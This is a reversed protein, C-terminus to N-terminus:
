PRPLQIAGVALIESASSACMQFPFPVFRSLTEGPPYVRVGAATTAHCRSPPFDGADTVRLIAIASAGNPLTVTHPTGAVERSAARGIQRDALTVASVGPYGGLTCAHGSLNTFELKYYVGGATGGGEDLLWVDLGRTTCPHGATSHARTGDRATAASHSSGATGTALAGGALGLSVATSALATALLIAALTRHKVRAAHATQNRNLNSTPMVEAYLLWAM